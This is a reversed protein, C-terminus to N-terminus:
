TLVKQPLARINEKCHWVYVNYFKLLNGLKQAARRASNRAKKVSYKPHQEM